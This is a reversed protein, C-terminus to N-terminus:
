PLILFPVFSFCSGGSISRRDSHVISSNLEKTRPSKASVVPRQASPITQLPSMKQGVSAKLKRFIARIPAHTTLWAEQPREQPHTKKRGHPLKGDELFEQRGGQRPNPSHSPMANRQKGQIALTKQEGHGKYDRVAAELPFPVATTDTWDRIHTQLFSFGGPQYAYKTSVALVAVPKTVQDVVLFKYKPNM